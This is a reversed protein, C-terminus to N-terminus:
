EGRASKVMLYADRLPAFKEARMKEFQEPDLGWAAAAEKLDIKGADIMESLYTALQAAEIGSAQSYKKRIEEIPAAPAEKVQGPDVAVADAWAVAASVEQEAKSVIREADIQVARATMTEAYDTATWGSPALYDVHHTEGADDVHTERVYIRGDVQRHNDLTYTSSQM